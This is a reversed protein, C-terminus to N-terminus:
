VARTLASFAMSCLYLYRELRETLYDYHVMFFKYFSIKNMNQHFVTKVFM